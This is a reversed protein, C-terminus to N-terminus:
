DDDSEKLTIKAASTRGITHVSPGRVDLTLNTLDAEGHSELVVGLGAILDKLTYAPITYTTTKKM